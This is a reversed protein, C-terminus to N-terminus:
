MHDHDHDSQTFFNLLDADPYLNWEDTSPTNIPVSQRPEGYAVVIDEAGLVSHYLHACMRQIFPYLVTGYSDADIFVPFLPASIDEGFLLAPKMETGNSYAWTIFCHGLVCLASVVEKRKLLKNIEVFRTVLSNFDNGAINVAFIASFLPNSIQHTCSGFERNETTRGRPTDPRQLRHCMVLKEMADDLTRRSLTQKVEIVAYTGEIPLHPRRAGTVTPAKIAPFWTENFVVVDCHGATFGRRDVLVGTTVPYRHPLIQKLEDRFIEELGIGSDFYDLNSHTEEEARM